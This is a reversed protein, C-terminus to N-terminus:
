EILYIQADILAVFNGQDRLVAAPFRGQHFDHAPQNGRFAYMGPHDHGRRHFYPEQILLGFEKRAM